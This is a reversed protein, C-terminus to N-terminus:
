MKTVMTCFVDYNMGTGFIPPSVSMYFHALFSIELVHYNNFFNVPHGEEEEFKLNSKEM